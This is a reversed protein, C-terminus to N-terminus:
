AARGQRGFLGLLAAPALLLWARLNRPDAELARRLYGLARPDRRAFLCRGIFYNTAGASSVEGEAAVPKFDASALIAEESEGRLRAEHSATILKAYPLKAPHLRGSISEPSIRYRYLVEQVYGVRGHMAMRLWLDSDQAFYFLERYGGVREYVDRRFMVSGHGPPGTRGHLLLDTAEAPDAPRRHVLLPEDDPGIVEAWSSAMALSSDSDLLELQRRLRGPASVDDGDQRAIYRGRALSCGLILARTLGANEQSVIRLRSDRSAAAQLITASDDTSGDDVVIFELDVGQQSLICDLGHQLYRAGNFVSMVVSIEPTTTMV